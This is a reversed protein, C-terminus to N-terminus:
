DLGRCRTPDFGAQPLGAAGTDREVDEFSIESYVEGVSPRMQLRADDFGGLPTVNLEM